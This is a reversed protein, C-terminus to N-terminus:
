SVIRITIKGQLQLNNSDQVATMEFKLAKNYIYLFFMQNQKIKCNCDQIKSVTKNKRINQKSLIIKDSPPVM